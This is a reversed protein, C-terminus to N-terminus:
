CRVRPAAVPTILTRITSSEARMRRNSPPMKLDCSSKSTATARSPTSASAFSCSNRGSTTVSSTWIGLISPRAQRSRMMTSRGDRTMMSDDSVSSPASSVNSAMCSPATSKTALGVPATDSAISSSAGTRISFTRAAAFIGNLVARRESPARSVACRSLPRSCRRRNVLDPERHWTRRRRACRGASVTTSTPVDVPPGGASSASSEGRGASKGQGIRIAWCM